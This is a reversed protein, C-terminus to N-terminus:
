RGVKRFSSAVLLKLIVGSDKVRSSEQDFKKCWLFHAMLFVVPKDKREKFKKFINWPPSNLKFNVICRHSAFKGAKTAIFNLSYVATHL